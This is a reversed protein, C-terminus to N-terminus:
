WSPQPTGLAVPTAPLASPAPLLTQLFPPGVTCCLTQVPGSGHLAKDPRPSAWRGTSPAAAWCSHPSCWPPFAAQELGWLTPVAPRNHGVRLVRHLLAAAGYAAGNRSCLSLHVVACRTETLLRGGRGPVAMVGLSILTLQARLFSWRSSVLNILLAPTCPRTLSMDPFGPGRALWISWVVM